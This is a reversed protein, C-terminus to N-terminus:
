TKAKKGNKSSQGMKKILDQYVKPAEDLERMFPINRAMLRLVEEARKGLIAKVPKSHTSLLYVCYQNLSVGEENAGFKLQDHLSKPLRLPM